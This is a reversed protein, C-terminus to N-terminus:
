NVHLTIDSSPVVCCLLGVNTQAYMALRTHSWNIRCTQGSKCSSYSCQWLVLLNIQTSHESYCWVTSCKNHIFYIIPLYQYCCNGIKNLIYWYYPYPIYILTPQTAWDTLAQSPAPRDPKSYQYPRSIRWGDLSPRPGVWSRTCHTGPRERPNLEAPTHQQGSLGELATTM